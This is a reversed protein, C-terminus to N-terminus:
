RRYPCVPKQCWACPTRAPMSAAAVVIGTLSKRPSMAGSALMAIGISAPKLFRALHAQGRRLDWDCYGPSFRASTELGSRALEARLHEEVLDAYHEVLFSGAADLLLAEAWSNQQAQAILGDIEEGLTLAFGYLGAPRDMASVLGALKVSAIVLGEATLSRATCATLMKKGLLARPALVTLVDAATRAITDTLARGDKHEDEIGAFQRIGRIFRDRVPPLFSVTEM